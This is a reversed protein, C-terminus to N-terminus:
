ALGEPAGAFGEPKFGVCNPKSRTNRRGMSIAVWLQREGSIPVNHQVKALYSITIHRNLLSALSLRHTSISRHIGARVQTVVQADALYAESAPLIPLTFNPLKKMIVYWFM